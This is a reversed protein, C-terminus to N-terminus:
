KSSLMKRYPHEESFQGVVHWVGHRASSICCHSLAEARRCSVTDRLMHVNSQRYLKRAGPSQVKLLVETRSNMWCWTNTSPLFVSLNFSPMSSSAWWDTGTTWLRCATPKFETPFLRRITLIPVICEDCRPCFARQLANQRREGFPLTWWIAAMNGPQSSQTSGM